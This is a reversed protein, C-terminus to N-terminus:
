LIKFEKLGFYGIVLYILNKRARQKKFFEEDEELELELDEPVEREDIPVYDDHSSDTRVINGDGDVTEQEVLDPM